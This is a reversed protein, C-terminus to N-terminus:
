QPRRMRSIISQARSRSYRLLRCATGHRSLMSTLGDGDVKAVPKKQAIWHGIRV